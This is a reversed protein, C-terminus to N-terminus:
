VNRRTGGLLLFAITFLVVVGQFLWFETTIGYLALSNISRILWYPHFVAGVRQLLNPLAELPILLGSLMVIIAGVFMYAYKSGEKSKFFMSWCFSFATTAFGFLTFAITIGITIEIEWNHRFYGIIGLLIAQLLLPIISALLNQTIYSVTSIPSALVRVISGDIRDELVLGTILHSNFMTLLAIMGVGADPMLFMIVIPVVSTSFLSLPSQFNRFLAYKFVTM